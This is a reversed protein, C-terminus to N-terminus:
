TTKEGPTTKQRSLSCTLQAGDRTGKIPKEPEVKSYISGGLVQKMDEPERFGDMWKEGGIGTWMNLSGERLKRKRGGRLHPYRRRRGNIHDLGSRRPGIRRPAKRNEGTTGGGILGKKKKREESKEPRHRLRRAWLGV